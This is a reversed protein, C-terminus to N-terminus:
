AHGGWGKTLLIEGNYQMLQSQTARIYATMPFRSVVAKILNENNPEIHAYGNISYAKEVKSKDCVGDKAMYPYDADSNLGGNEVMFMYTATDVVM